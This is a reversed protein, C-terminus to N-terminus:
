AAFLLMRTRPRPIAGHSGTPHATSWPRVAPRGARTSSSRPARASRLRSPIQVIRKLSLGHSRTAIADSSSSSIRTSAVVVNEDGTRLLSPSESVQKACFWLSAATSTAATSRSWDPTASLLRDRSTRGRAATDSAFLLV